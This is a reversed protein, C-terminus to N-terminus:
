ASECLTAQRNSTWGSRVLTSGLTPLTRRPFITNVVSVCGAMRKEVSRSVGENGEEEEGRERERYIYLALFIFTTQSDTLRGGRLKERTWGRGVPPFILPFCLSIQWAYREKRECIYRTTNNVRNYFFPSWSTFERHRIKRLLKSAMWIIIFFWSSVDM